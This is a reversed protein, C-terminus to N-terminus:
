PVLLKTDDGHESIGVDCSFIQFSIGVFSDYSGRAFLILQLGAIISGLTQSCPWGSVSSSPSTVYILGLPFSCPTSSVAVVQAQWISEKRSIGIRGCGFLVSLTNAFPHVLEEIYKAAGITGIADNEVISIVCGILITWQGGRCYPTGSIPSIWGVERSICATSPLDLMM